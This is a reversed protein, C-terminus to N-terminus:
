LEKIVEAAKDDAEKEVEPFNRVYKEAFGDIGWKEYQAVHQLEHAWWLIATDSNDPEVSFIIINGVTVAFAHNGMFAQTGNIAEPLTFGAASVLYKAKELTAGDYYDKLLKKISKPIPKAAPELVNQAGQLHAALLIEIPANAIAQAIEEPTQADAKALKELLIPVINITVLQGAIAARIIKVGDGDIDRTIDAAIFYPTSAVKATATAVNSVESVLNKISDEIAKTDGQALHVLLVTPAVAVQITAQAAAAGADGVAQLGDGVGDDVAELTKKVDGGIGLANAVGSLLGGM